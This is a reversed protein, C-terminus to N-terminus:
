WLALPLWLCASIGGQSLLPRLEVDSKNKM